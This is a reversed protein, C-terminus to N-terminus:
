ATGGRDLREHRWLWARVAAEFSIMEADIITDTVGIERLREMMRALYHVLHSEGGDPSLSTMHQAVLRVDERRAVAPFPLIRASM